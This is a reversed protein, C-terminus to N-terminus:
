GVNFRVVSPHPVWLIKGINMMIMIRMRIIDIITMMLTMMIIMMTRTTKIIIIIM